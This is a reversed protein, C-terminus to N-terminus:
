SAHNVGNVAELALTAMFCRGQHNGTQCQSYVGILLDRCRRCPAPESEGNVSFRSKPLLAVAQEM